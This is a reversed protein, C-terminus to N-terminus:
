EENWQLHLHHNEGEGHWLSWLGQQRAFVAVLEEQAPTIGDAVLDVARGAMHLSGLVGGVAANKVADRYGSTFVPLLGLTRQIYAQVKAVRGLMEPRVGTLVPENVLAAAGADVEFRTREGNEYDVLYRETDGEIRFVGSGHPVGERFEGVYRDGNRFTYVGKGEFRGAAFEGTYREGNPLTLTGTGQYLGAAMDGVFLRGEPFTAVGRGSPLGDQCDGSWAYAAGVLRAAETMNCIKAAEPAAQAAAFQVSLAVVWGIACIRIKNGNM